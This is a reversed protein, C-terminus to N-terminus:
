ISPGWIIFNHCKFSSHNKNMGMSKTLQNFTQLFLLIKMKNRKRNKRTQRLLDWKHLLQSILLRVISWLRMCNIRSYISSLQFLRNLILLLWKVWICLLGLISSILGIRLRISVWFLGRVPIMAVHPCLSRKLKNKM